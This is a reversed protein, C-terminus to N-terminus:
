RINTKSSEAQVERSVTVGMAQDYREALQRNEAVVLNTAQGYSLQSDSQMKRRVLADIQAAATAAVPAEETTAASGRERFEVTIPAEKDLWAAFGRPDSLAFRRTHTMRDKNGIMRPTLKGERLGKALLRLGAIRRQRAAQEALRKEMKATAEMLRRVQRDRKQERLATDDDMATKGGPAVVSKPNPAVTPKRVQQVKAGPKPATAVPPKIGAFKKAKGQANGVPQGASAAAAVDDDLEQAADDDAAVEDAAVDDAAVDDLEEADVGQAKKNTRKISPDGDTDADTSTEALEEMEEAAVDDDLEELADADGGGEDMADAPADAQDDLEEMDESPVDEMDAGGGDDALYKVPAGCHPCTIAPAAKKDSDDMAVEKAAIADVVQKPAGCHACGGATKRAM